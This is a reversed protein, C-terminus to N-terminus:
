FDLKELVPRSDTLEEEGGGWSGHSTAMQGGESDRSKQNFIDAKRPPPERAGGSFRALYLPRTLVSTDGLSSKHFLLYIKM